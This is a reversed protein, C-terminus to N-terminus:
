DPKDKQVVTTVAGTEATMKLEWLKTDADRVYFEWEADALKAEWKEVAGPKAELAKAKAQTYTLFKPAFAPLEYDFGPGESAIEVVAGSAREIEVEIVAGSAHKVAVVWRHEDTTDLKETATATGPVVATAKAQAQDSSIESSGAGTDSSGCAVTAGFAAVFIFTM